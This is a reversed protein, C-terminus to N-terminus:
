PGVQDGAEEALGFQDDVRFRRLWVRVM